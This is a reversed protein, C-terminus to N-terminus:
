AFESNTWIEALSDFDKLYKSDIPLLDTDLLIDEPRKQGLFYQYSSFRYSKIIKSAEKKNKITKGSWSDEDKIKVPNLHIYALLYELYADNDVHKSKFRGEFIPGTRQHKINFYMGYGTSIKQMFKSLGKDTLGKLLLHFHNPMLCYSFIEVLPQGRNLKFYDSLPMGKLDCLRVDLSGNCLYLLIIFRWRDHDDLFIPSKNVGRNYLHYIEGSCFPSKREM